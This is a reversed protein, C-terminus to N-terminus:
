LLRGGQPFEHPLRDRKAVNCAPCAIVLNFPDNSGGRSLPVVHDVHYNKGVKVGCYYCRGRQAKFQREIDTATHSGEANLERAKRNRVSANKVARSSLRWKRYSKSRREKNAFYYSSDYRFYDPHSSRWEKFYTSMCSKCYDQLGDPHKNHRSFYETTAPKSQECKSRFKLPTDQSTTSHDVTLEGELVQESRPTNGAGGRDIKQNFVRTNYGMKDMKVM